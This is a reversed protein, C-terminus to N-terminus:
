LFLCNRKGVLDYSEIALVTLGRLARARGVLVDPGVDKFFCYGPVYRINFTCPIPMCIGQKKFNIPMLLCDREIECLLIHLQKYYINLLISGM